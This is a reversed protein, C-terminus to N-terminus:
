NKWLEDFDYGSEIFRVTKKHNCANGLYTYIEMMEDETFGTDMYNNIGDLMFKRCKINRWEQSYPQGKCAARSFWELVKCDIDEPYECDDLLFYQNSKVHAIFENRENIFSGPFSLLLAEKAERM